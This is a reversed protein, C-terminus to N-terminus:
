TQCNRQCASCIHKGGISLNASRGITTCHDYSHPSVSSGACDCQTQSQHFRKGECRSCQYEEPLDSKKTYATKMGCPVCSFIGIGIMRRHHVSPARLRAKSNMSRVVDGM